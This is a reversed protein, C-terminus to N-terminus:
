FLQLFFHILRVRSQLCGPRSYISYRSLYGIARFKIGSVSSCSNYRPYHVVGFLNEWPKTLDTESNRWYSKKCTSYMKWWRRLPLRERIHHVLNIVTIFRNHGTSLVSTIEFLLHFVDHNIKMQLTPGGVVELTVGAPTVRM